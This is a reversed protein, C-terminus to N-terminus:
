NGKDFFRFNLTKTAVAGVRELSPFWEPSAFDTRITETNFPRDNPITEWKLQLFNAFFM